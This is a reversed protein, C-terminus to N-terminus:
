GGYRKTLRGKQTIFGNKILFARATEPTATVDAVFKAYADTSVPAPAARSTKAPVAWAGHGASRKSQATTM